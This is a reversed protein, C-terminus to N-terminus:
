LKYGEDRSVETHVETQGEKPRVDWRLMAYSCPGGSSPSQGPVACMEVGGWEVFPSVHMNDYSTASVFSFERHHLQRAILGPIISCVNFTNLLTDPLLRRSFDTAAPSSARLTLTTGVQLKIATPGRLHFPLPPCVSWPRICRRDVLALVHPANAAVCIGNIAAKASPETTAGCSVMTTLPFLSTAASPSSSSGM